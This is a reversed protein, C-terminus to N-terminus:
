AYSGNKTSTTLDTDLNKKAHPHGTPGAGNKFLGGKRWQIVKAEKNFIVQSRKHLNINSPGKNQKM